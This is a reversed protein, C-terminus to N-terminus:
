IIEIVKYGNDTILKLFVDDSVSSDTTVIATGATHSVQASLVGDTEELIKKVRAECHPCMMGEIKITKEMQKVEEKPNQKQKKDRKTSHIDRLNLRLANTVVCFSSLSMALAGFMPDLEWGLLSIFAGAALPIGIMNYSFAWFLNQHINKVTARSLKIAAVIDLPSSNVLVVDASDIAIQAGAGIAMGTDAATLAPADNIGDGVMLVKGRTRLERVAKEKGDPLIGAIVSDIGIMDAVARATKENDGTLMVVEIGMDRLESVAERSEEKIKDAVAIMGLLRDEVSFFMPTKGQMALKDAKQLIDTDLKVISQMYKLSGGHVRRGGVTAVIGSGSLIEVEDTDLASVSNEEAYNVIARALPHESKKEISYAYSVLDTESVGDASSVDTVAPQGSTLTGTKDIAVISTKGAQELATANKFLIGCSAGKGSGVMIAVPTALGLACPCSIVLVSIGRALAFGVEAGCILWVATTIVAVAIVFPVFIGSVKDAIKAIPAKTASADSVMKIIQSLTTDEGVKTAECVLYGLKNVTATYVTDGAEKDAPISEGTLSSEDVAASGRIVVADVPISDGAKVIFVDGRRVEEAPVTVEIDDRLLVATKPTLKILAKLANATKGKSHAELLKGVTILTLIMAASEFYSGHLYHAQASTDRQACMLFLTYTSYLYSVGSGLAVLTDMNPAGHLVGKIGSVFFRQNIVLVIGSLLAQALAVTIPNEEFFVPLPAGWMVHGMSIYMLICLFFVSASLRLIIARREANDEKESGDTNKAAQGADKTDVSAGYGADRVAAIVVEPSVDGEVTMSNTLLNVSCSSIGDLKSVAREVRSSCAACSMGTVKYKDM